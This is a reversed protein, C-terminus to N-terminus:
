LYKEFYEFRNVFCMTVYPYRIIEIIEYCKDNIVVSEEKHLDNLYDETEWIKIEKKTDFDKFIIM